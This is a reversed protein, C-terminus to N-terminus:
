PLPRRTKEDVWKLHDRVEQLQRNIANALGQMSRKTEKAKRINMQRYRVDFDVADDIPTGDEDEGPEPQQGM